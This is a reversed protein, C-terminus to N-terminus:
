LLRRQAGQELQEIKRASIRPPSTKGAFQVVGDIDWIVGKGLYRWHWLPQAMGMPPRFLLREMRAKDTGAAHYKVISGDELKAWPIQSKTESSIDGEVREWFHLTTSM